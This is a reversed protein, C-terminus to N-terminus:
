DLKTNGFLGLFERTKSLDNIHYSSLAIRIKVVGNFEFDNLLLLRGGTMGRIGYYYITGFNHNNNMYNIFLNYQIGTINFEIYYLEDYVAFEEFLLDVKFQIELFNLINRTDESDIIEGSETGIFRM